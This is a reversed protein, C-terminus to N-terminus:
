KVVPWGNIYNIKKLLMVRGKKPDKRDIAHYAIWKQGSNDTFISNHGPALWTEDKELIASSQKGSAKALTTFPGFPNDARAVLVAYNASDGCCNDGSYYLYYKGDQIDVWSGEILNTYVKEAKPQVVTKPQTGPKFTRWDASMEQVKLPEFGSGWYLLKKKTKPDIIGMPDINVFGNGCILPTGKDVFPGEPKDAFAVGLCKGTKDDTSEGSYFMVYKKLGADYLVHPAWYHENAWVPRKPLVDPLMEWHQLGKSRAGQINSEGQTAYAYYYGNARIVTPDPFDADIVPNNVQAYGSFAFAIFATLVLGFKM